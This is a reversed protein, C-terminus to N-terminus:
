CYWHIEVSKMFLNLFKNTHLLIHTSLPPLDIVDRAARPSKQINDGSIGVGAAAPQSGAKGRVRCCTVDTLLQPLRM